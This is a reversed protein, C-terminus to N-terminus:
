LFNTNLYTLILAFGIFFLVWIDLISAREGKLGEESTQQSKLNKGNIKFTKWIM